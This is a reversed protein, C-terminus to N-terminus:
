KPILELICSTHNMFYLLTSLDIKQITSIEEVRENSTFTEDKKSLTEHNALFVALGTFFSVIFFKGM